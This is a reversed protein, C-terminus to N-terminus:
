QRGGEFVFQFLDFPESVFNDRLEAISALMLLSHSPFKGTIDPLLANPEFKWDPFTRKGADEAVFDDTVVLDVSWNCFRYSDVGRISLCHESLRRSACSMYQAPIFPATESSGKRVFYAGCGSPRPAFRNGFRDLSGPAKSIIATAGNGTGESWCRYLSWFVM